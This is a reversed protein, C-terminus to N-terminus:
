DYEFAFAGIDLLACYIIMPNLKYVGVSYFECV